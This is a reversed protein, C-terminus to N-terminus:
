GGLTSGGLTSGGLTSGGLTSGGLTSGGTQSFLGSPQQQAPKTNFLGGGSQQPQQQNQSSAGQGLGGFLGTGSQQPQSTTGLSGFLSSTSTAPPQTNTSGFLGGSQPSATSTQFISSKPAGFISSM